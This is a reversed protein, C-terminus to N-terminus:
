EFTKLYGKIEELAYDPNFDRKETTSVKIPLKRIKLVSLM